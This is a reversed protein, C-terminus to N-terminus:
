IGGAEKELREELLHKNCEEQYNRLIQLLKIEELKDKSELIIQLAQAAYWYYSEYFHLPHLGFHHTESALTYRPFPIIHIGKEEYYNLNECLEQLICREARKIMLNGYVPNNYPIVTQYGDENFKKVKRNKDLYYDAMRVSNYIIRAHPYIKLLEKVFKCIDEEYDQALQITDIDRIKKINYESHNMWQKWTDILPMNKCMWIEKEDFSFVFIKIRECILDIIIYDTVNNQIEKLALKNADYYLMRNNFAHRDLFAERAIVGGRAFCLQFLIRDM